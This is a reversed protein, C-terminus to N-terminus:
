QQLNLFHLCSGSHFHMGPSQNQEYAGLGGQLFALADQCGPIALLEALLCPGQDFGPLLAQMHTAIFEENLRHAALSSTAIGDGAVNAEVGLQSLLRLAAEVVDNEMFKGVQTLRAMALRELRKEISMLRIPLFTTGQQVAQGQEGTSGSRARRRAM